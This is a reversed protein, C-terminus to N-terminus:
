SNNILKNVGCALDDDDHKNLQSFGFSNPIEGHTVDRKVIM